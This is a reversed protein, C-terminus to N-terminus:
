SSAELWATARRARRAVHEDAGDEATALVLVATVTAAWAEDHAADADARAVVGVRLREHPHWAVNVHTLSHRAAGHTPGRRGARMDARVVPERAARGPGPGISARVPPPSADNRAQCALAVGFTLRRSTLRGTQAGRLSLPLRRTRIGVLRVIGAHPRQLAVALEGFDKDLTRRPIVAQTWPSHSTPCHCYQSLGCCKHTAPCDAPEDCELRHSRRPCAQERPVCDITGPEEAGPSMRGPTDCCVESQLVCTRDGCYVRYRGSPLGRRALQISQASLLAVRSRGRSGAHQRYLLVLGIVICAATAGIVVFARRGMRRTHWLATAM